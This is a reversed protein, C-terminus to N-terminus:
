KSWLFVLESRFAPQLSKGLLSCSGTSFQSASFLTKLVLKAASIVNSSHSFKATQCKERTSRSTMGPAPTTHKHALCQQAWAKGKVTVSVQHIGPTSLSLVSPTHWANVIVSVQQIGPMSLSLCKSYALRQCHCVGATNWANVIVSVQQIGPTSLSLCRSYALHQCQCFLSLCRNYALRQCYCVGATHWANVSVSVQQIGPMSLSLCRSYALHQCHCVGATHWTNVSVSVQQIGSM